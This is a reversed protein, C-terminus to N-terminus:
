LKVYAIQVTISTYALSYTSGSSVGFILGSTDYVNMSESPLPMWKGVFLYRTNYFQHTYGPSFTFDYWGGAYVNEIRSRCIIDRGQGDGGYQCDGVVVVRACVSYGIPALLSPTTVYENQQNSYFAGGLSGVSCLYIDTGVGLTLEANGNSGATNLTASDAQKCLISTIPYYTTFSTPSTTSGDQNFSSPLKLSSTTGTISLNNSISM